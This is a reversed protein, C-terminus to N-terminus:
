QGSRLSRPVWKTAHGAQQVGSPETGAPVPPLRLPQPFEPQIMQWSTEAPPAPAPKTTPPPPVTDPSTSPANAGGPAPSTGPSYTQVGGPASGCSSCRSPAPAPAGSCGSCEPTPTLPASDTIVSGCSPCDGSVVPPTSASCDPPTWAGGCPLSGDAAAPMPGGCPFPVIMEGCDPSYESQCDFTLPQPSMPQGAAITNPFSAPVPAVMRRQRRLARRARHRKHDKDDDDGQDCKIWHSAHPISMGLRPGYALGTVPDYYAAQHCTCGALAACALFAAVSGWTAKM